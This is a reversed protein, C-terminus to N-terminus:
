KKIKVQNISIGVNQTENLSSEINNIQEGQEAVMNNTKILQQRLGQKDSM